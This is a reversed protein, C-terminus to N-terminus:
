KAEKEVSQYQELVQAFDLENLNVTEIRQRPLTDFNSNFGDILVKLGQSLQGLSPNDLSYGKIAEYLLLGFERLTESKLEQLEERVHASDILYQAKIRSQWFNDRSYNELQRVTLKNERHESLRKLSRSPGLEYYLNLMFNAKESEGPMLDLPSEHNWDM